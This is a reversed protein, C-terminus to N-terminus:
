NGLRFCSQNTCEIIIKLEEWKYSWPRYKERFETYAFNKSVNYYPFGWDCSDIFVCWEQFLLKDYGMLM